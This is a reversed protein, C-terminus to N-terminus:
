PSAAAQDTAPKPRTAPNDPPQARAHHHHRHLPHATTAAPAQREQVPLRTAAEALARACTRPPRGPLHSALIEDGAAQIAAVGRGLTRRAAHLATTFSLRGPDAGTDAAAHCILARIAQYTVLFPTSRRTLATPPPARLLRGGLITSKLEFYATAVNISILISIM